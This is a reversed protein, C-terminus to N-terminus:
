ITQEETNVKNLPQFSQCHLVIALTVSKISQHIKHDNNNNNNNILQLHKLQNISQSDSQSVSQSIITIIILIIIIKQLPTLLNVKYYV